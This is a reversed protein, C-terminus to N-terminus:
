SAWLLFPDVGTLNLTFAGVVKGYNKLCGHVVGLHFSIPGSHPCLVGDGSTCVWLKRLTCGQTRM